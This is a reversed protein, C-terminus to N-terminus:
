LDPCKVYHYLTICTNGRYELAQVSNGITVEKGPGWGLIKWMCMYM